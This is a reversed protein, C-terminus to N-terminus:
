AAVFTYKFDFDFTQGKCSDFCQADSGELWVEFTVLTDVNEKLTFSAIANAAGTNGDTSAGTTSTQDAAGFGSTNYPAYGLINKFYVGADGSALDNFQSAATTKTTDYAGGTVDKAAKDLQYTKSDLLAKEYYTASDSFTADKAPVYEDGASKTYLKNKLDDFNTSTVGTAELYGAADLGNQQTVRLRMATVADVAFQSGQTITNPLGSGTLATQKIAAETKNDVTLIVSATGAASAKLWMKFTLLSGTIKKGEKDVWDGKACRQTYYTTGAAPTTVATQDVLTYEGADETYYKTNAAWAALDAPCEDYIDATAISQADLQDNYYNGEQLDTGREIGVLTIETGYNGPETTAGKDKAIFLSGELAEGAVQGQVGTATVTKNTVYWAYTATTLTAATAALATGALVLKSIGKLKM